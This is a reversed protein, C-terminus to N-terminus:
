EITGRQGTSAKPRVRTSIDIQLQGGPLDLPPDFSITVDRDNRLGRDAPKYFGEIDRAQGLNYVKGMSGATAQVGRLTLLYVKDRYHLRGEVLTAGLASAGTSRSVVITADPTRTEEAVSQRPVVLAATAGLGVLVLTRMRQQTM